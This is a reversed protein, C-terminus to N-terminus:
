STPPAGGGPPQGGQAQSHQPLGPPMGALQQRQGAAAAAWANPDWVTQPFDEGHWWPVAQTVGPPPGLPPQQFGGQVPTYAYPYGQPFPIPAPQAPFAGAHMPFGGPGAVPPQQQTAPPPPQGASSGPGSVPMSFQSQGMYQFPQARQMIDDPLPANPPLGVLRKLYLRYKQLHSAVKERTMGEVNMLQLITKPVAHKVGLHNVANMFRTHLETTWVLRPKKPGRAANDAEDEAPRKGARAAAAAADRELDQPKPAGEEDADAGDGGGDGGSSPGAGGVDLGEEGAPEEGASEESAPTPADAADAAAQGATEGGEAGAAGAAAGGELGLAAALPEPVLRTGAPPLAQQQPPPTDGAGQPGAQETGDAEEAVAAAKEARCAAAASATEEM